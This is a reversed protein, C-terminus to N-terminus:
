NVEQAILRVCADCESQQLAIGSGSIGQNVFLYVLTNQTHTNTHTNNISNRASTRTQRNFSGKHQQQATARSREAKHM